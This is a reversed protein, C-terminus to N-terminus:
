KSRHSTTAGTGALAQHIVAHGLPNLHGDNPYFLRAGNKAFESQLMTVLDHAAIGRKDCVTLVHRAFFRQYQASLSQPEEVCSRGALVLVRLDAQAQACTQQLRALIADFVDNAGRFRAEFTVGYDPTPLLVDRARRGLAFRRAVRAGWGDEPASEGLVVTALDPPPQRETNPAIPVPVNKLALGNTTLVFHPKAANLQIPRAFQNDLLDNGVYVALWVADPRVRPLEDELLLAQQDTSFGPISLNLFTNTGDRNLRSVFTEGDNVGLGFTFSDGVVAILRGCRNRPQAPDARYGSENIAYRVAFDHHRHAGQWGPTLRWGLRPDYRIFGPDLRDSGQIAAQRWRLVLEAVALGLASVLLVVILRFALRKNL